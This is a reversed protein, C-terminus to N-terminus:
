KVRLEECLKEDGAVYATYNTSYTVYGPKAAPPKKVNKVRTYDVAIQSGELSSYTAAITAAETYDKESPEEGNCILVVHSGPAGKVHFWLDLKSALKFTIHDNQINNKGCLVRYGSDTKFEIPKVASVKVAKFKTMRSAYGSQALERRIEALDAETEANALAQTVTELYALEGQAMAIQETLYKKANKCKNYKKYYKQANQAPTMRSDLEISIEECNESYYNQVVAAKEGRKIAYLNATLLDGHLKFKEGDECERLEERQLEIKKELRATANSVLKIIDQGRQKIRDALDRKEFYADTLAGFNEFHEVQMNSGYQAIDMFCFEVPKESEDYVVTPLFKKEAFIARFACITEWLKETLTNEVSADTSGATIYALERSVLPSIGLFNNLIFRSLLMSGDAGALMVSLEGETVSFIDRKDQSPPMEYTMGPLIQRMRSTSFDILKLATIVRKNEDTFILNSYKGMIEVIIYRTVAFGMEDRSAFELEVIRDFGVQKASILKGGGLQKRLLMCLMPPSAPNEKQTDTFSIKPNNAGANIALRLNERTAASHLTIVIEDKQPQQIKEVKADAARSNIENVVAFIMGSDFAM